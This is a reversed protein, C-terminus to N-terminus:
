DHTKSFKSDFIFCLDVFVKSMQLCGCPAESHESHRHRQEKLRRPVQMSTQSASGCLALALSGCHWCVQPQAGASEEACSSFLPQQQGMM